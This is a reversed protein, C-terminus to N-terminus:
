AHLSCAKHLIIFISGAVEKGSREFHHDELREAPLGGMSICQDLVDLLTRVIQELYFFAREIRGQLPEQFVLQDLGLPGDGRGVAADAGVGDGSCAHAMEFLFDGAELAHELADREYESWGTM